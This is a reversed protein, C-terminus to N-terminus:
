LLRLCLRVRVLSCACAYVCMCVCVCVCSLVCVRMCVENHNERSLVFHLPLRGKPSRGTRISPGDRYAGLLLLVIEITSQTHVAVACAAHLPLLGDTSIASAAPAAIGRSDFRLLSRVVEVSGPTHKGCRPACVLRLAEAVSYHSENDACLVCLCELILPFHTGTHSHRAINLPSSRTLSACVCLCVCLCLCLCLCVCVCVCVCVCM